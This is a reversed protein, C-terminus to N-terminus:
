NRGLERGLVDYYIPCAPDDPHDVCALVKGQVGNGWALVHMFEHKIPAVDCRVSLTLGGEHQGSVGQLDPRRLITAGAIGYSGPPDQRQAKELARLAGTELKEVPITGGCTDRVEATTTVGLHTVSIAATTLTAFPGTPSTFVDCGLLLFAIIATGLNRSLVEAM